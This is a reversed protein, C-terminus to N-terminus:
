GEGQGPTYYRAESAMASFGKAIDDEGQQEDWEPYCQFGAAWATGVPSAPDPSCEHQPADDRQHEERHIGGQENKREYLPCGAALGNMAQARGTARMTTLMISAPMISNQDSPSPDRHRMDM